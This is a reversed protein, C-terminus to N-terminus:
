QTIDQYYDFEEKNRRDSEFLEPNIHSILCIIGSVLDAHPISNISKYLESNRKLFQLELKDPPQGFIRSEILPHLVYHKM